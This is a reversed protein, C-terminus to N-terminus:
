RHKKEEIVPDNNGPAKASQQETSLNTKTPPTTTRTTLTTETTTSPDDDDARIEQALVQKMLLLNKLESLQQAVDIQVKQLAALEQQLEQKTKGRASRLLSEPTTSEAGNKQKTGTSTTAVRDHQQQYSRRNVGTSKGRRNKIITSLRRCQYILSVAGMVIVFCLLAVVLITERVFLEDDVSNGVDITMKPTSDEQM